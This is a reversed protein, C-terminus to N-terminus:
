TSRRLDWRRRMRLSVMDYVGPAVIVRDKPRANLVERLTPMAFM